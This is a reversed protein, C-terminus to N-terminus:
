DSFIFSGPFILGVTPNEEDERLVSAEGQIAATFRYWHWTLM